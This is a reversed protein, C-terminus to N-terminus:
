YNFDVGASLGNLFVSQKNNGALIGFTKTEYLTYDVMNSPRAINNLWMANYGLRVNMKTTLQYKAELRLEVIPTFEVLHAREDFQLGQLALPQMIGRPFGNADQATATVGDLRITQENVGAVFRGEGVFSWRNTHQRFFRLGLQPGIIHNFATNTFHTEALPNNQDGVADVNFDENLEIYRAGFYWEWLWGKHGPHQRYIYNSEIGWIRTQMGLTVRDFHVLLRVIDGAPPVGPTELTTAHGELHTFNGGAGWANDNVFTMVDPRTAEQNYNTLHFYGIQWGEHEAVYGIEYRQGGTFRTQMFSTNFSSQQTVTPENSFVPDHPGQGVWVAKGDPAAGFTADRPAQVTWYLGDFTLFLGESPRVGGGYSTPIDPAFLQMDAMGEMGMEQGWASVGALLTLGWAALWLSACKLSM